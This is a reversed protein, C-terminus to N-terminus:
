LEDAKRGKLKDAEDRLSSGEKCVRSQMGPKGKDGPKNWTASCSDDQSHSLLAHLNTIHCLLLWAHLATGVLEFALCSTQICVHLM